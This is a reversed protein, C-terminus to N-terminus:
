LCADGHTSMQINRDSLIGVFAALCEVLIKVPNTNGALRLQRRLADGDGQGVADAAALDALFRRLRGDGTKKFVVVAGRIGPRNFFGALLNQRRSIGPQMRLGLLALMAIVAFAPVDASEATQDDLRGGGVEEMDAIGADVAQPTAFHLLQGFIM